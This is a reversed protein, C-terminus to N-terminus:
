VGGTRNVALGGHCHTAGRVSDRLASVRQKVRQGWVPGKERRQTAKAALHAVVLSMPDDALLPADKPHAGPGSAAHPSM